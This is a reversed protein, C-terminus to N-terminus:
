ILKKVLRYVTTGYTRPWTKTPPSDKQSARAIADSIGPLLKNIDISKDYNPLHNNLRSKLSSVGRIGSGTEFHLLLWYEFKPNSIAVGFQKKNANRWSILDRLESVKWNDVDVVVWVEDDKQLTNNKVYKKARDLVSLPNGKHRRRLKVVNLSDNRWGLASLYDPETKKGECAIAIIKAYRRKIGPRRFSSNLKPM